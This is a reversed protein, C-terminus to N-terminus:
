IGREKLIKRNERSDLYFEYAACEEVSADVVTSAVGTGSSAGDVHVLKMMVREDPSKLDDFNEDEKCKEYFEKGKRIALKEEESYDQPKNKIINALSALAAKDVEEDRKFSDRLVAITSLVRPITRDVVKVPIHGGTDMYQTLTLKCQLVGNHYDINKATLIGSTTARVLKGLNEGYDVQEKAPVIAVSMTDDQGGKQLVYRMVFERKHLPYPLKKIIAFLKENTREKGWKKIELRAPNGEERSLAMRERSCYEFFWAAAEEASCDAVCEARGFGLTKKGKEQQKNKIEMKVGEHPSKLPRWGEEDEGGFIKNFGMPGKLTALKKLKKWSTKKLIKTKGGEEEEGFLEELEGFVKKQDEELESGERMREVLAGRVEADVEKGNRRFKKQLRNAEVLANKALYDIANDMVTKHIGSFKLDVTQIRTVRCVNPAIENFFYIGRTVGIVFGDKSLNTFSAGYYEGLPVFGLMYATQGNDLKVEKWVFWNEFLRNTAAPVKVGIHYHMSRTGDVDKRIVRPLNGNNKFHKESSAFTDFLFEEALVGKASKDVTVGFAAWVNDEEKWLFKDIGEKLTGKVRKGKTHLENELSGVSELMAEEEIALSPARPMAEEVFYRKRREDIVGPQRFKKRVEEMIGKVAAYAAKVDGKKTRGPSGEVSSRTSRVSKFSKFTRVDVEPKLETVREEAKLTGVMTVATQGFEFDTFSLKGKIVGRKVTKTKKSGLMEVLMEAAEDSLDDEDLPALEMINTSKDPSVVKVDLLFEVFKNGSGYHQWYVLRHIVGEKKHHEQLTKRRFNSQECDTLLFDIIKDREDHFVGALEMVKVDVGTYNDILGEFAGRDDLLKVLKGQKPGLATYDIDVPSHIASPTHNPGSPPESAYNTKGTDNVVGADAEVEGEM